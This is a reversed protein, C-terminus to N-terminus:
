ESVVRVYCPVDNLINETQYTCSDPINNGCGCFNIQAPSATGAKVYACYNYMDRKGLDNLNSWYSALKHGNDCCGTEIFM